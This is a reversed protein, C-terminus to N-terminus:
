AVVIALCTTCVRAFLLNVMLPFFVSKTVPIKADAFSTPQSGQECHVGDQPFFCNTWYFGALRVSGLGYLM